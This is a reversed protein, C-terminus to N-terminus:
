RHRADKKPQSLGDVVATVAAEDKEAKPNRPARKFIEAAAQHFGSPMGASAFTQAIEEMERVWRWGKRSAAWGAGHLRTTLEPKSRAWEKRLEGEIGLSRATTLIALLLADSGKTWGAYCNKFGSAAGAGGPLVPAEMRTGTFLQAVEPARIGSLYLRTTGEKAPPPGVIGGDVFDTGNATVIREIEKATDPSVANCDVFLKTKGALARAVDVAGHPPVISLVLDSEAALQDMSSVARLNAAKARAVTEPSRGEPVWLVDHGVATLCAGVESGMDGPHILGIIRTVM